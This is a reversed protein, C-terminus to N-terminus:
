QKSEWFRKVVEYDDTFNTYPLQVLLNKKKFYRYDLITLIGIDNETRILRGAGQKLKLIMESDYVGKIKSNKYEFIPDPVPYPLRVVILSSLDSGPIDIGEWFVGTALLVGNTEKLHNITQLTDNSQKLLKWSYNSGLNVIVQFVDNLHKKATFLVITRGQTLNALRIIEKAIKISSGELSVDIKEKPNYLVTQEHYNFPSDRPEAYFTDSPLGLSKKPYSYYKEFNTKDGNGLTASLFVLTKSERSRYLVEDLLLDKIEFNIDKPATNIQLNTQSFMNTYSCWKVVSNNSIGRFLEILTFLLEELSEYISEQFELYDIYMLEEQIEKLSQYVETIVQKQKSFFEEIDIRRNTIEETDEALRDSLYNHIDKFLNKLKIYAELYSVKDINLQTIYKKYLEIHKHELSQSLADRVVEEFKHAEDIIITHGDRILQKKYPFDRKRKLHEVLLNHNVVICNKSNYKTLEGRMQFFECENKFSCRNFICKEVCYRGQEGSNVTRWGTHMENISAKSQPYIKIFRKYCPYNRQGKGVVISFSDDCIESVGKVDKILQETLQISSSSIILPTKNIYKSSILGPILYAFSKGIGVGAEAIMVGGKDILEAIDLMLNNQDERITLREISEMKDLIHFTANVINMLKGRNAEVM